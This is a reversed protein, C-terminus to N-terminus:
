LLINIKVYNVISIIFPVLWFLFLIMDIVCGIIKLKKWIQIDKNKEDNSNIYNSDIAVMPNDLVTMAILQGDCNRHFGFQWLIRMWLISSATILMWNDFFLQACSFCTLLFLDSIIGAILASFRTLFSWVWIHTMSVVATAKKVRLHIGGTKFSWTRAYIMHMLEHLLTTSASFFLMFIITIWLPVNNPIISSGNPIGILPTVILMIIFSVMGISILGYRLIKWKLCIKEDPIFQNYDSLETLFGSEKLLNKAEDDHRYVSDDSQVLSKATAEDVVLIDSNAALVVWNGNKLKRAYIQKILFDCSM